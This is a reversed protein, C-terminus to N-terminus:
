RLNAAIVNVGKMAYDVIWQVHLRAFAAYDRSSM